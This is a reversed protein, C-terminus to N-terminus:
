ELTIRRKSPASAVRSRCYFRSLLLPRIRDSAGRRERPGVLRSGNESSRVLRAFRRRLSARKFRWAHKIARTFTPRVIFIFLLENLERTLRPRRKTGHGREPQSPLTVKRSHETQTTGRTIQQSFPSGIKRRTSCYRTWCVVWLCNWLIARPAITM